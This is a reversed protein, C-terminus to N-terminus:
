MSYPLIDSGANRYSRVDGDVVNILLGQSNAHSGHRRHIRYQLIVGNPLTPPEWTVLVVSPGLAELAPASQMQPPSEFTRVESASGIGCGGPLDVLCAAIRVTYLTFPSLGDIVTELLVGVGKEIVELTGSNLLVKYQDIVGNPQRPSQWKVYIETSSLATINTPASLGQPTVSPLRIVSSESTVYGVRNM